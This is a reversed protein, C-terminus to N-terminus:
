QLIYTKLITFSALAVGVVGITIIWRWNPGKGSLAMIIAMVAAVGVLAKGILVLHGSVDDVKTIFPASFAAAKNIFTLSIIALTSATRLVTQQRTRKNM